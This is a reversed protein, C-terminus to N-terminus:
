RRHNTANESTIWAELEARLHPLQVAGNELVRDHSTGRPSGSISYCTM